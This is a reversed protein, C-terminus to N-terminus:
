TQRALEDAKAAWVFDNRHLGDIAHTWIKAEVKGWTLLLEPHHGQEESMEGLRNTLELARRFDGTEFTRELHHEDIVKWGPHIEAALRRIEEGGLPEEGGKCPTCQKDALESM